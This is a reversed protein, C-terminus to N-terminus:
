QKFEYGTRRTKNYKVNHHFAIENYNNKRYLYVLNWISLIVYKRFSIVYLRYLLKILCISTKRFICLFLVCAYAKDNKLRVIFVFFSSLKYGNDDNLFFIYFFLVDQRTIQIYRLSSDRNNNYKAPSFDQNGKYIM